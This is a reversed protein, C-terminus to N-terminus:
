LTVYGYGSLTDATGVPNSWARWYWQSPELRNLLANNICLFPEHTVKGFKDFFLYDNSIECIYSDCESAPWHLTVGQSDRKFQTGHPKLPRLRRWVSDIHKKCVFKRAEHRGFHKEIFRLPTKQWTYTIPDPAQPLRKAQGFLHVIESDPIIFITKGLHKLAMSLDTDEYGLFFRTDLGGLSKLLDKKIFFAAGGIGEVQYPSTATWLGADIKWIRSLIHNRESHPLRTFVAHARNPTLIKLSCVELTKDEDLWTRPGCAGAEPHASLFTYLHRLAGPLLETDPNLLLVFEGTAIDLGQNNARAFGANRDNAIVHIEPFTSRLMELSNDCSANDIIIIESAPKTEDSLISRLCRKLLNSTNFNVILISIHINV